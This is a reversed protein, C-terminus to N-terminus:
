QNNLNVYIYQGNEASLYGDYPFRRGAVIDNHDHMKIKLKM